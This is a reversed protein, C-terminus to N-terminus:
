PTWGSRPTSGGSGCSCRNRPVAPVAPVSRRHGTPFRHPLQAGFDTGHFRSSGSSGTATRDDSSGVQFRNRFRHDNTCDPVVKMRGAGGHRSPLPISAEGPEPEQGTELSGTGVEAADVEDGADGDGAGVALIRRVQFSVHYLKGDFFGCKIGSALALSTSHLVPDPEESAVTTDLARIVESKTMGWLAAKYGGGFRGARRALEKARSEAHQEEAVAARRLADRKAKAKEATVPSPNLTLVFDYLNAAAKARGEGEAQEAKKFVELARPDDVPAPSREVTPEKRCASGALVV